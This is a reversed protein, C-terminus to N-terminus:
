TTITTLTKSIRLLTKIPAKFFRIDKKPSSMHGFNTNHPNHPVTQPWYKTAIFYNMFDQTQFCSNSAADLPKDNFGSLFSVFQM